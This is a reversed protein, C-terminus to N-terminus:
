GNLRIPLFNTKFYPVNIYNNASQRLILNVAAIDLSNM